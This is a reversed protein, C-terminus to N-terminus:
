RKRNIFDRMLRQPEGTLFCQAFWYRPMLVAHIV